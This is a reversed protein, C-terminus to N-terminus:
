ENVNRRKSNYKDGVMYRLTHLQEETLGLRECLQWNEIDEEKAIIEKFRKRKFPSIVERNPLGRNRPTGRPM